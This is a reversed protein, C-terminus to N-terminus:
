SIGIIGKATFRLFEHILSAFLMQTASIAIIIIKVNVSSYLHNILFSIHFYSHFTCTIMGTLANRVETLTPICLPREKICM